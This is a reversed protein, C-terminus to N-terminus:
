AERGSALRSFQGASNDVPFGPAWEICL